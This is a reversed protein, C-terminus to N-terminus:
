NLGFCVDEKCHFGSAPLGNTGWQLVLMGVNIVQTNQNFDWLFGMESEDNSTQQAGSLYSLLLLMQAFVGKGQLWLHCCKMEIQLLSFFVCIFINRKSGHSSIDCHCKAKSQSVQPFLPLIYYTGSPRMAVASNSKILKALYSFAAM